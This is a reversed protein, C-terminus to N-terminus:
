FEPVAQIVQKVAVAHARQGDRDRGDDGVVAIEILKRRAVVDREVMQRHRGFGLLLLLIAEGLQDLVLADVEDHEGAVHLHQRLPQALLKRAAGDVDM